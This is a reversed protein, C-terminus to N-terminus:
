AEIQAAAIFLADIQESSLGLAAALGNITPSTRRFEQANDWALKALPGAALVAAEAQELLGAQYLAAQAQFRSVVQPIPKMLKAPDIKIIM